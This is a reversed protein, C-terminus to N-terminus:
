NMQEYLECLNLFEGFRGDVVGPHARQFASPVYNGFVFCPTISKINRFTGLRTQSDVSRVQSTSRTGLTASDSFIAVVKRSIPVRWPPQLAGVLVSGKGLTQYTVFKGVDSRERKGGKSVLVGLAFRCGRPQGVPPGCRMRRNSNISMVECSLSLIVCIVDTYIKVIDPLCVSWVPLEVAKVSTVCTCSHTCM